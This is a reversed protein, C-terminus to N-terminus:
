FVLMKNFSQERWWMWQKLCTTQSTAVRGSSHVYEPCAARWVPKLCRCFSASGPRQRAPHLHLDVHWRGNGWYSDHM